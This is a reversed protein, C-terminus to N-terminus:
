SAGITGNEVDLSRRIEEVDVGLLNAYPRLTTAGADYAAYADRTLLGPPRPRSAETVQKSFEAGRGAISAAHRANVRAFRDCTGADILRLSKLRYALASPSVVLDCALAAFGQETLGTSGVAGRLTQEPMLLASAFANARLESPTKAQARDFVDEDLHVGQDDGALLHGLEHALTFRQRAPVTSTALVILKVDDSSTALGDFGNGLDLVAVDAGFAAEVLGPLDNTDLGAFRAAAATALRVGQDAWRGAGGVAIDLPRWPQAFGLESLDSRMTALRRAEDVAARASGGTTRAAVALPPVEGTILWDVTVTCLEAIRALDLSSFRRSGALGKSLKSDDLGIRQAFDHQTLGSERILDRVRDSTSPM